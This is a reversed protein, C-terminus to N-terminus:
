YRSIIEQDGFPYGGKNWQALIDSQIQEVFGERPVFVLTGSNIDSSEKCYFLSDPVASMNPRDFLEDINGVVIMDSDLYVIKEFQILEFMRLKFFTREWEGFKRTREEQPANKIAEPLVNDHMVVYPIGLRSLAMFVKDDLDDTCLVTLGISCHKLLSNRLIVVGPLYSESSLVTLYTKQM